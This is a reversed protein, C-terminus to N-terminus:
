GFALRKRGRLRVTEFKTKIVSVSAPILKDFYAQLVAEFFSSAIKTHTSLLARELVYLDVGKEETSGAASSLGFDLLVLQPPQIPSTVVSEIDYLYGGRLMMNSTTLDGHVLNINHIKAIAEGIAYAVSEAWKPLPAPADPPENRTVKVIAPGDLLWKKVTPGDIWELFLEHKKTDSYFLLPADVGAKRCKALCRAESNNREKSLRDDLEPQRYIKSFREKIVCPRGLHLAKYLRAEAGQMFLVRDLITNEPNLDEQQQQQQQQQQPTHQSTDAM